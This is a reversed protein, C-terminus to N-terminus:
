NIGRDCAKRFLPQTWGCKNAEYRRKRRTAYSARVGLHSEVALFQKVAPPKGLLGIRTQTQASCLRKSKEPLKKVNKKFDAGTNRIQILLSGCIKSGYPDPDVLWLYRSEGGSGERMLCFYYSFGQNRSYQSKKPSKIKSFHHLHVKLFYYASFKKKILKKTPALGFGSRFWSGITLPMAPAQYVGFHWPDTVSTLM